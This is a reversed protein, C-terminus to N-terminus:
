FPFPLSLVLQVVPCRLHLNLVCDKCMGGCSEGLMVHGRGYGKLARIAEGYNRHPRECRTHHVLVLYRKSGGKKSCDNEEEGNWGM